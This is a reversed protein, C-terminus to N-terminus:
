IIVSKAGRRCLNNQDAYAPQHRGPVVPRASRLAKGAHLQVATPSWRAVDTMAALLPSDVAPCAPSYLRGGIRDGTRPAYRHMATTAGPGALM